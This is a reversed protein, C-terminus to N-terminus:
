VSGGEVISSDLYVVRPPTSVSTIDELKDFLLNAAMRGIEAGMPDISTIKPNYISRFPEECFAIVSVDDPISLNKKYLAKMVGTLTSDSIAFIADPPSPLEMFALVQEETIELTDANSILMEDFPIGAQILATKYGQLRNQCILLNSNGACIAIRRRGKEILHKVAKFSATVDDVLVMDAKLEKIIKDFFVIPMNMDMIQQLHEYNNTNWSVSVLIGEVNNSILINLNEIERELSEKSQLIILNYGKEHVIEEVANIVTPFFFSSIEPIIMGIIRTKRNRFNAALSNPIYNLKKAIRRVELKTAESIDPHDKLARSVTSKSVGLMRAIDIITSPKNKM